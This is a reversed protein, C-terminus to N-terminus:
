HDTRIQSHETFEMMENSDVPEYYFSPGGAITFDIGKQEIM